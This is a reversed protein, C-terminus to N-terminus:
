ALSELCRALRRTASAAQVLGQLAQVIRAQRAAPDTDPAASVSRRRPRWAAPLQAAGVVICQGDTGFATPSSLAHGARTRRDRPGKGVRYAAALDLALVVGLGSGCSADGLERAGLQLVPALYQQKMRLSFRGPAIGIGAPDVRVAALFLVRDAHEGTLPGPACWGGSGSDRARGRPAADTSRTRNWSARHPPGRCAGPCRRGCRCSRPRMAVSSSMFFSYEPKSRHWGVVETDIVM